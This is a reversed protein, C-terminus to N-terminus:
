DFSKLSNVKARWSSSIIQWWKSIRNGRFLWFYICILRLNISFVIKDQINNKIYCNQFSQLIHLPRTFYEVYKLKIVKCKHRRDLKM